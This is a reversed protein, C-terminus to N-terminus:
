HYYYIIIVVIIIFIIIIIIIIINIIIIVVCCYLYAISIICYFECHPIIVQLQLPKRYFSMVYIMELRLLFANLLRCPDQFEVIRVYQNCVKEQHKERRHLITVIQSNKLSYNSCFLFLLLFFVLYRLVRDSTIHDLTVIIISIGCLPKAYFVVCCMEDTM